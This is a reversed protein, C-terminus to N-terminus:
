APVLHEMSSRCPRAPKRQRCLDLGADVSLLASRKEMAKNKLFLLLPKTSSERHEAEALVWDCYVCFYGGYAEAYDALAQKFDGDYGIKKGLHIACIVSAAAKLYAEHEAIVTVSYGANPHLAKFLVRRRRISMQNDRLYVFMAQRDVLEAATQRLNYFQAELTSPAVVAKMLRCHDSTWVRHLEESNLIRRAISREKRDQSRSAQEIRSESEEMLFRHNLISRTM